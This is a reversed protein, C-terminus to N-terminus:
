NVCQLGILGDYSVFEKDTVAIAVSKEYWRGNICIEFSTPLVINLECQYQGVGKLRISGVYNNIIKKLKSKAVVVVPLGLEEYRLFNGSDLFLELNVVFGDFKARASYIYSSIKVKRLCLRLFLSIILLSIISFLVIFINLVEYSISTFLNYAKSKIGEVFLIYASFLVFILLNKASLNYNTYYFSNFLCSLVGMVTVYFINASLLYSFLFCFYIILSGILLDYWKVCINVTICVAISLSVILGFSLALFLSSM